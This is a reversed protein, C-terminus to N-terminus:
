MADEIEWFVEEEDSKCTLRIYDGDSIALISLASHDAIPICALSASLGFVTVGVSINRYYGVNANTVDRFQDRYTNVLQVMQSRKVYKEYTSHNNNFSLEWKLTYWSWPDYEYIGLMHGNNHNLKGFGKAGCIVLDEAPNPRDSAKITMTSGVYELSRTLAQGIIATNENGLLDKLYSSTFNALSYFQTGSDYVNHSTGYHATLNFSFPLVLTEDEGDTLPTWLINSGCDPFKVIKESVASSGSSGDIYENMYANRSFPNFSTETEHTNTRTNFSFGGIKSHGTITVNAAVLNDFLGSQAIIYQTLIISADIMDYHSSRTWKVSGGPTGPKNNNTSTHNEICRFYDGNETVIDIYVDTKGGAQYDQGSQWPRLRPLAKYFSEYMECDTTSVSGDSYFTATFRWAYPQTFTPEQPTTTWAMSPNPWGGSAPTIGSSQESKMYYTVTNTVSVGQNNANIAITIYRTANFATSKVGITFTMSKIATGQAGGSYKVLAIDHSIATSANWLITIGDKTVSSYTIGQVTVPTAQATTKGDVSDVVPNNATTGDAKQLNFTIQPYPTPTTKPVGNSLCEVNIVSPSATATIADEGNAGNEARAIEVTEFDCLRYASSTTYYRLEFYIGVYTECISSTIQMNSWEYLTSSGTPNVISGDAKVYGFFLYLNGAVYTGGSSTSITVATKNGQLDTRKAEFALTIPSYTASNYAIANPRVYLDYKDQKTKNATFEAYYYKGSSQPYEARVTVKATNATLGTVYLTTGTIYAHSEDTGVRASVILTAQSTVETNGNYLRIASTAGIQPDPSICNGADNYLFDEHENALALRIANQGNEGDKVIAVTERDILTGNSDFAAIYVNGYSVSSSVSFGAAPWATGDSASSPAQDTRYCVTLGSAAVAIVSTGNEDSKKISLSLTQTSSPISGSSDRKFSIQSPSPLLQLITPSVGPEGSKVVNATFTAYYSNGGWTLIIQSTYKDVSLPTGSGTAPITWKINVVGNSISTVASVNAIAGVYSVAVGSSVPAAGDYIRANVELVTQSMVKGDSDCPISDMENDLDIKVANSGSGDIGNHVHTIPVTESDQTKSDKTLVVMVNDANTAMTGTLNFTRTTVTGTGTTETLNNNLSDKVSLTLGYDNTTKNTFEVLHRTGGNAPTRYVQVNIATDAVTESTNVPVANPTVVLDYKDIGILKKVTFKTYYYKGSNAPYEARITVEGDSTLGSVTVVRGSITAQQDSMGSRNSVTFTADSSKDTIGDFLYATAQVTASPSVKTVGDGQYQISDYENDIDIRIANDGKEGKAAYQRWAASTTSPEDTTTGFAVRACCMQQRVTLTDYVAQTITDGVAYTSFAEFVKFSGGNSAVCLWSGGNHQYIEYYKAVTGATWNGCEVPIPAIFSDTVVEWKTTHVKCGTKPAFRIKLPNGYLGDEMSFKNIGEYMKIAADQGNVEQVILNMRDINNDNGWQSVEDGPAPIDSGQMAGSYTYPTAAEATPNCYVDFYHYMKGDIEVPASSVGAVKRWWFINGIKQTNTGFYTDRESVSDSSLNFTQCRALDNGTTDDNPDAVCWWNQIKRDGEEALFYCRVYRVSQREAATLQLRVTRTRSYSGFPNQGKALMMIANRLTFPIKYVEYGLIDKNVDLYDVKSIVSAACSQVQNGGTVLEKKVELSEFVAKMRVYLEDITLKSHGNYDKTLRWGTDAIGDGTYNSSQMDEVQMREATIDDVFLSKFKAIGEATIEYLGKVGVWLGKLFGIQEEATDEKKRSLYKGNLYSPTVVLTESDVYKESTTATAVGTLEKNGLFINQFYSGVKMIIPKLFTVVGTVKSYSYWDTETMDMIDEYTGLSGFDIGATWERNVEGYQGSSSLIGQLWVYFYDSSGVQTDEENKGYIDLKESPFVVVAQTGIAISRPIAVYVYKQTNSNFYTPSLSLAWRKPNRGNDLGLGEVGEIYCSIVAGSAVGGQIRNPDGLANRTISIATPAIWYDKPQTIYDM